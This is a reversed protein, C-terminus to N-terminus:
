MEYDHKQRRIIDYYGWSPESHKSKVWKEHKLESTAHKLAKPRDLFSQLNNDKMSEHSEQHNCQWWLLSNEHCTANPSNQMQPSVNMEKSKHMCKKTAHRWPSHMHEPCRTAWNCINLLLKHTWTSERKSKQRDQTRMETTNLRQGHRQPGLNKWTSKAKSISRMCTVKINAKTHEKNM